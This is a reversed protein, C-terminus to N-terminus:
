PSSPAARVGWGGGEPQPYAPRLRGRLRGRGDAGARPPSRPGAPRDIGPFLYPLLVEVVLSGITEELASLAPLTDWCSALAVEWRGIARRVPQLGELAPLGDALEVLLPGRLEGLARALEREPLYRALTRRPCGRPFAALTRVVGSRAPDGRIWEDALLRALLRQVPSGDGFYRFRGGQLDDILDPVDYPRGQLAFHEVARSFVDSVTRPGNSLDPREVCQGLSM